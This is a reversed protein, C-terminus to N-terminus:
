MDFRAGVTNFKVEGDPQGDLFQVVVSVLTGNNIQRDDVNFDHREDPGRIDLNDQRYIRTKGDHVHVATMKANDNLQLRVWVDQIKLSQSGIRTPTAIPFHFWNSTGPAQRVVTGDGMRRLYTIRDPYEVQVSAGHTWFDYDAM